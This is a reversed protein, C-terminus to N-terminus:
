RLLDPVSVRVEHLSDQRNINSNTPRLHLQSVTDNNAAGLLNPLYIGTDNQGHAYALPQEVFGTVKLLVYKLFTSGSKPFCAVLLHKGIESEVIQDTYDSLMAPSKADHLAMDLEIRLNADDPTLSRALRLKEVAHPFDGRVRQYEVGLDGLMRGLPIRCTDNIAGADERVVEEQAAGLMAAANELKGEGTLRQGEIMLAKVLNLRAEAHDPTTELIQRLLKIANDMQGRLMAVLGLGNLADAWHGPDELLRRYVSEARDIAGQELDRYATALLAAADQEEFASAAQSTM